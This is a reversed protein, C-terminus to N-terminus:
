PEVVELSDGRSYFFSNFNRTNVTGTILGKESVNSVKFDFNKFSSTLNQPQGSELPLKYIQGTMNETTQFIAYPQDSGAKVIYNKLTDYFGVVKKKLRHTEKWGDQGKKAVVLDLYFAHTIGSGSVYVLYNFCPSLSPFMNTEEKDKIVQRVESKLKLV